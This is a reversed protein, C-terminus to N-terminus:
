KLYMEVMSILDIKIIGRKTVILLTNTHTVLRPQNRVLDQETIITPNIKKYNCYPPMLFTLLLFSTFFILCVLMFAVMCLSVTPHLPSLDHKNSIRIILHYHHTLSIMIIQSNHLVIMLSSSNRLSVVPLHIKDMIIVLNMVLIVQLPLGLDLQLIIGLSLVSEILLHLLSITIHPNTLIDVVIHQNIRVNLTNIMMMMSMPIAIMM